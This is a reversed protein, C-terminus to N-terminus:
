AEDAMPKRSCLRATRVEQCLLDGLAGWCRAPCGLLVAQRLRWHRGGLGAHAHASSVLHVAVPGNGHAPANIRSLRQGVGDQRRQKLANVSAGAIAGM